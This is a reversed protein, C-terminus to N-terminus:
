RSARIHGHCDVNAYKEFWTWEGKLNRLRFHIGREHEVDFHFGQPVLMTLKWRRDRSENGHRPGKSSFHLQESDRWVAQYRHDRRFARVRANVVGLDDHRLSVSAARNWLDGHQPATSFSPGPLLLPSDITPRITERWREEFSAYSRILDTFQESGYSHLTANPLWVFRHYPRARSQLEAKQNEIYHYALIHAGDGSAGHAQSIVDAWGKSLDARKHDRSTLVRVDWGPIDIKFGRSSNFVPQSIGVILLLPM